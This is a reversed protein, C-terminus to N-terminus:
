CIDTPDLLLLLFQPRVRLPGPFPLADPNPHAAWPAPCASAFAHGDAPDYPKRALRPRRGSPAPTPRVHARTARVGSWRDPWSRRQPVRLGHALGSIVWCTSRTLAAASTGSRGGPFFFRGKTTRRRPPKAIVTM